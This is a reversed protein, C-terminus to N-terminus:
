PYQLSKVGLEKCAYKFFASEKAMVRDLSHTIASDLKELEELIAASSPSNRDRHLQYLWTSEIKSNREMLTLEEKALAQTVALRTTNLYALNGGGTRGSEGRQVQFSSLEEALRSLFQKATSSPRYSDSVFELLQKLVLSTFEAEVRTIMQHKGTSFADVTKCGGLGDTRSMLGALFILERTVPTENSLTNQWVRAPVPRDAGDQLHRMLFRDALEISSKLGAAKVAAEFERGQKALTSASDAILQTDDSQVFYYEPLSGPDKDIYQTLYAFLQNESWGKTRALVEGNVVSNVFTGTESTPKVGSLLGLQGPKFVWGRGSGAISYDPWIISADKHLYSMADMWYVPSDTRDCFWSIIELILDVPIFRDFNGYDAEMLWLDGKKSQDRLIDHRRKKSPGDHYCGPLFYRAAKYAVSVPSTLVNYIYPVMHAVRQSNVGKEDFATRLGSGSITFQHVWKRGPQLRRLPAVAFPHGRLGFQGARDDVISLLKTWDRGALTQLQRFLHVTKIRTVPSGEADVQGNFFPYGPNTLIPDGADNWFEFYKAKGKPSDLIANIARKHARLSLSFYGKTPANKGAYSVAWWGPNITRVVCAKKVIDANALIFYVSNRNKVLVSHLKHDPDLAKIAEEGDPVDIDRDDDHKTPFGLEKWQTCLKAMLDHACDRFRQLSKANKFVFPDSEKPDYDRTKNDRDLFGYKASFLEPIADPYFIKILNPLTIGPGIVRDNTADVPETFPRVRRPYASMLPANGRLDASDIRYM